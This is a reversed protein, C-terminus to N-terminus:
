FSVLYDSDNNPDSGSSIKTEKGLSSGSFDYNCVYEVTVVFKQVIFIEYKIVIKVKKITLIGFGVM